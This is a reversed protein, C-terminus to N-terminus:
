YLKIEEISYFRCYDSPALKFLKGDMLRKVIPRINELDRVFQLHMELIENLKNFTILVQPDQSLLYHQYHSDLLVAIWEYLQNDPKVKSEFLNDCKDHNESFKILFYNLLKLIESFNLGVRLYHILSVDTFCITLIKNLLKNESNSDSNLDDEISNLITNDLCLKLIQILLEAPLDKLYDLCWLISTLDRTKILSPILRQHIAANSLGENLLTSIENAVSENLNTLPLSFQNTSTIGWDAKKLEQIVIIENDDTCDHNKLNTSGIIAEIKEPALRFPVVALHRNAALLIKNEIKWLKADSTYLKLKQVAQVLKFHVNYIFLIAGEEHADAGYAAITNDNLAIMAVPHKTNITTIVSVLSGPVSENICSMLPYSYLRGHSWLTLLYVNKKDHMIVHGVLTESSRKLDIKILKDLDMEYNDKQLLVFVYSHFNGSNILACFYINDNVSILQCQLIKENSGLIGDTKWDKKIKLASELSLTTGNPMVLIPPVEKLKLINYIPMSFKCKKVSDLNTEKETWKRIIKANFIAVYNRSIEDYVVQATLRDKSSWSSVQKLDQLKYRIVINKGLTVIACGSDSDAEVGLLNQQDILPCLTYYSNLQAM